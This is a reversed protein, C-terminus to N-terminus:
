PQPQQAPMPVSRDTINRLRVVERLKAADVPLPPLNDVLIKAQELLKVDPTESPGGGWIQNAHLQVDADEYLAYLAELRALKTRQQAIYGFGVATAAGISIASVWFEYWPNETM